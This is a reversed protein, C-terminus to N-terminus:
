MACTTTTPSLEWDGSPEPAYRREEMGHRVESQPAKGLRKTVRRARGAILRVEDRGCTTRRQSATMVNMHLRVDWSEANSATAFLDDGTPKKLELERTRDMQEVWGGSWWGYPM